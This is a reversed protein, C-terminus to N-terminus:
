ERVECTLRDAADYEYYVAKGTERVFSLGPLSDKM